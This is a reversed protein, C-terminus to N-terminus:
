SKLIFITEGQNLTKIKRIVRPHHYSRQVYDKLIKSSYGHIITVEQYFTPVQNLFHDLQVKAEQKTYGHLDLSTNM